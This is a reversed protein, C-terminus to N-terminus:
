RPMLDPDKCKRMMQLFFGACNIVINYSFNPSRQNAAPDRTLM